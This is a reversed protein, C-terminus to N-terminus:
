SVDNKLYGSLIKAASFISYEGVIERSRDGMSNCLTPNEVFKKISKYLEEEKFPDFIFGNDRVADRAGARNSCIVPLGYYMAENVVLAWPDRITPLVFLDAEFYARFKEEGSLYGTFSVTGAAITKLREMEPGDGAIILEVQDPNFRRCVHILLENNKEKRLYGLSLVRLPGPKRLASRVQVPNKGVIEPIERISAAQPMRYINEEPVGANRLMETTLGSFSLITRTKYLKRRYWKKFINLILDYGMKEPHANRAMETWLFFRGWFIRALRLITFINEIHEILVARGYVSFDFNDIDTFAFPGIKKAKLEYSPFSSDEKDWKRDTGIGDLYLVEIDEKKALETFLDHRYPTWYNQVFLTKM